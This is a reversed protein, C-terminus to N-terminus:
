ETIAEKKLIKLAITFVFDMLLGLNYKENSEKEYKSAFAILGNELAERQEISLGDYHIKVLDFLIKYIKIQRENIMGEEITGSFFLQVFSKMIEM